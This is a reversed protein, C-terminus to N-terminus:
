RPRGFGPIGSRPTSMDYYQTAAPPAPEPRGRRGSLPGAIIVDDDDEGGMWSSLSALQMDGPALQRASRRKHWRFSLVLFGLLLAVLIAAGPISDGLGGGEAVASLSANVSASDNAAALSGASGNCRVSSHNGRFGPLPLHSAWSAEASVNGVPVTLNSAATGASARSRSSSTNNSSGGGGSSSSSSSSSSNQSEGGVGSGSIASSSAHSSSDRSRSSSNSSGGHSSSSNNSNNNDNNNDNNNSNDNNSNSSNDHKSTLSFGGSDQLAQVKPATANMGLRASAAEQRQRLLPTSLSSLLRPTTM